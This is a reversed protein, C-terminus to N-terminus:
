WQTIDKDWIVLLVAKFYIQRICGNCGGVKNESVQVHFIKKWGSKNETQTDKAWTHAAYQLSKWGFGHLWGTDKLKLM